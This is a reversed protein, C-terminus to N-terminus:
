IIKRPEIFIGCLVMITTLIITWIILYWNNKFSGLATDLADLYDQKDNTVIYSDCGYEGFKELLPNMEGDSYDVIFIKDAPFEGAFEEDDLFFRDSDISKRIDDEGDTMIIMLKNKYINNTKTNRIYLYSKWISECIPSGWCQNNIQNLGRAASSPDSFPVVNGAKLMAYNKVETIEDMSSKAGSLFEDLGDLTTLIIENNSELNNLTESLAEIANKKDLSTSNDFVISILNRGKSLSFLLLLFGTLLIFYFLKNKFYAKKATVITEDFKNSTKPLLTIDKISEFTFYNRLKRLKLVPVLLSIILSLLLSIQWPHDSFFNISWWYCILGIIVASVALSSIIWAKHIYYVTKFQRNRRTFVKLGVIVLLWILLITVAPFVWFEFSNYEAIRFYYGLSNFLTEM